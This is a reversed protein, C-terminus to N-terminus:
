FDYEFPTPEDMHSGLYERAEQSLGEGALYEWLYFLQRTQKCIYNSYDEEWHMKEYWEAMNEAGHVTGKGQLPIGTIIM